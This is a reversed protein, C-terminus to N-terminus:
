AIRTLLKNANELRELWFVIREKPTEAAEIFQSPLPMNPYKHTRVVDRCAEKFAARPLDQLVSIYIKLGTKEPLSARFVQAIGELAGAIEELSAPAQARRAQELAPSLEHKAQDVSVGDPLRKNRLISSVLYNTSDSVTQKLWVPPIPLYLDNHGSSHSHDAYGTEGRQMGTSSQAARAVGTIASSIPRLSQTSM